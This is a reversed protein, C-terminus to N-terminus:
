VTEIPKIDILKLRNFLIPAVASVWLGLLAYRIFRFFAGVFDEGGPFILKLGLYLLGVGIMGIIWSLIKKEVTKGPTFKGYKNRFWFLGSLMGFLTASTTVAGSLNLPNIPEEQTAALNANEVWTQPLQWESLAAHPIISFSLILISIILSILIQIGLKKSRIWNMVPKEFKLYILLLLGGLTWGLLVDTSFHVGLYLRSLGILLIICIFLIKFVRKKANVAFMGWVSAATLSHGSPLGFSTEATYATVEPSIWYPRPSHFILKFGSHLGTSLLVMMGIRLGFYSNVCWYITPILLIFFYENGLNTVLKVPSTLWTGLQQFFLNISLEIIHIAEM